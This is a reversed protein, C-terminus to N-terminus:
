AAIRLLRQLINRIKQPIRQEPLAISLERRLCDAQLAKRKDAHSPRRQADDWPSDGRQVLQQASKNWAWLEVLTHMWLNLHWCGINSWLTRVQQQGAGWVEKVDHFVQEIAARDAFAELIDRADANVDTCYLYQPGHEEQVIVVRIPQGFTRHTALFTKVRKIEDRGYIRCTVNMWGHRHSARKILSIRKVGYIRPRGRQSRQSPKPMDHLAADKRLRGVLTVGLKLTPRVFPQKAFAGDVVVWIPKNELTEHTKLVAVCHQLLDAGQQLKTAFPRAEDSRLTKIDRERIYLQSSIPLGIADWSAHRVVLALTVWVHGFCFANGTPGPTPDRHVGAGRVCRGYRKTPTDDIAILIRAQSRLVRSAILKLLRQSLPNAARGLSQLFYYYDQYDKSLGAARIWAAAVRRGGALLMGLMVLPARWRSRGHMGLSIYDTWEQWVQPAHYSEM